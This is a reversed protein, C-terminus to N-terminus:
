RLAGLCDELTYDEQQPIRHNKSQKEQSVKLYKGHPGVHIVYKAKKHTAVHYPYKLIDRVDDLRIDELQKDRYEPTELLYKLTGKKKGCQVYPGYPGDKLIVPTGEYDGLAYEAKQPYKPKNGDNDYKMPKLAKQVNVETIFSDYVKKVVKRWEVEGQSIRDLDGEVLATFGVNLIHAFHESLYALVDKGLDTLVIRQKQSPYTKTKTEKVIEDRKKLSYTEIQADPPKISTVETYDRQYLTGISSAYTSPRGIGSSELKKVISSENDYSPPKTDEYACQSTQLHFHTETPIQITEALQYEKSTGDHYALYGKYTLTRHVVRFDGYVRSEATQVNLTLVDYLAPKMHSCITVRRILAYLKREDDSFRNGLRNEPEMTTVRICEHAEQAGKVKKSTRSPQYDGPTWADAIYGKLVKQFEPSITPSDTRMYTIKSGDYLKQACEMTKKVSFRLEKQASQQLSSTIFPKPPYSKDETHSQGTQQFDRNQLFAKLLDEPDYPKKQVFTADCHGSPEPIEFTGKCTLKTEPQFNSISDEHDKLMSLLTSQVRGASLGKSKSKSKGQNQSKVHKWLLPSLSFGVLRDIIRRAQQANVSNMNLCHKADLAKMIAPKSIEHFIIRNPQKFDLNAVQGCHWAIADGERDDDAALLINASSSHDRIAKISQKAWKGPSTVYTPEFGNAVDVSLDKPDLDCIHGFSAICITDDDFYGQIKRAKAPSEVILVTKM